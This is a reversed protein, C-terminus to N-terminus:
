SDIEVFDSIATTREDAPLFELKDGRRTQTRLVTGSALELVSHASLCASMRWPHVDSRVKKVKKNRDLYILDIPFKMWFTHVSECPIIWLGEGFPLSKRGLLGKRRTAGRDAVELLDALVSQRTLNTVKLRPSPTTKGNKVSETPAGGDITM